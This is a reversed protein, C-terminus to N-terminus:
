EGLFRSVLRAGGEQPQNEPGFEYFCNDAIFLKGDSLFIRTLDEEEYLNSYGQCAVLVPVNELGNERICQIIEAGTPQKVPEPDNLHPFTRRGDAGYEAEYEDLARESILDIYAGEVEERTPKHDFELYEYSVPDKTTDAVEAMYFDNADIVNGVAYITKGCDEVWEDVYLCLTKNIKM